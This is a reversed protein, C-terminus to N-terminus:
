VDREKNSKKDNRKYLVFKKGIVQVLHSGTRESIIRGAERVDMECNQLIDIKILERAELAERVGQVFAPTLGTKGLHFIASLGNAQARLAARQKSNLM